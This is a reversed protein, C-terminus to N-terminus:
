SARKGFVGRIVRRNEEEFDPRGSQQQIPYLGQWCNFISQELVLSPQNGEAMLAALKGIALKAAFAGLPKKITRRMEVYAKWTEVPIWDPLILLSDTKGM